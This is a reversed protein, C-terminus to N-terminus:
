SLMVGLLMIPFFSGDLGQQNSKGQGVVDANYGIDKSVGVQQTLTQDSTVNNAESVVSMYKEAEVRFTEAIQEELLRAQEAMHEEIRKKNELDRVSLVQDQYEELERKASDIQGQYKPKMENNWTNRAQLKWWDCSSMGGTFGRMGACKSAQHHIMQRNYHYDYDQKAKVLKDEIRSVQSEYEEKSPVQTLPYSIPM